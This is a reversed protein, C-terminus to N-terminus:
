FYRGYAPGMFISSPRDQNMLEQELQAARAGVLAVAQPNLEGAGFTPVLLMALNKWVAETWEQPVDVTQSLDTVDEIVRAYSYLVTMEQSPVPWVTMTVADRQKNIYFATPFGPSAKNPIQRYQGAEWRQLPREFTSTQVLRAEMVDIVFPDLTVTATGIPFVVSGQTDRWLNVGKAQWSKLMWNLQRLATQGEQATPIEGSSIAGIDDMAAVVIEQATMSSSITGSTTM